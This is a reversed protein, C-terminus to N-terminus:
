DSIGRKKCLRLILNMATNMLASGETGDHVVHAWYINKKGKKLISM